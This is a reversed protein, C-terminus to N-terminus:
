YRTSWWNPPRRHHVHIFIVRGGRRFFRFFARAFVFVIGAAAVIALAVCLLAVISVLYHDVPNM